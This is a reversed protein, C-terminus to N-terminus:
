CVNFHILCSCYNLLPDSYLFWCLQFLICFGSVSELILTGGHGPGFAPNQWKDATHGPHVLWRRQYAFCFMFGAFVSFHTWILIIVKQKVIYLLTYLLHCVLLFYRCQIYYVINLHNFFIRFGTLFYHLLGKLISLSVGDSMEYFLYM